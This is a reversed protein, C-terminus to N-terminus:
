GRSAKAALATGVFEALKEVNHDLLFQRMPPPWNARDAWAKEMGARVAPDGGSDKEVQEMWRAALSQAKEGAPDENLAAEVELYLARWEEKLGSKQREGLKQWAEDSYYHRSGGTIAKAIFASLSEVQYETLFKRMPEPWNARDGWAKLMGSKVDPDGGSDKNALEMWRAALAQATESAPDQNLAAQVEGFLTKWEESPGNEYRHSIKLWAQESYYSKMVDLNEQMDIVEILRRLIAPDAPKGPELAKEAEAIAAIAVTITQRRAELVKRQMRLADPLAVEARDMVTKIQKLPLGLFKLAIIQQLRELDRVMYIRYGATSRGPKLLGIRDYHHLTKVTIGALEAFENVRYTDSM